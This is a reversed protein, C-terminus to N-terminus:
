SFSFSFLKFLKLETGRKTKEAAYKLGHKKLVEGANGVFFRGGKEKGEGFRFRHSRRRKRLAGQRVVALARV